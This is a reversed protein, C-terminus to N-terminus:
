SAPEAPSEPQPEASPEAAPPAATPAQTEALGLSELELRGDPDMVLDLFRGPDNDCHKRVALPLREFELAAERVKTMATHFDVSRSFDGYRPEKGVEPPIGDRIWRSMISNINGEDEEAQKTMLRGGGRHLGVEEESM